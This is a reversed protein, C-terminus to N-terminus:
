QRPLRRITHHCGPTAPISFRSQDGPRPWYRARHGDIIEVLTYTGDHAPCPEPNSGPNVARYVQCHTEGEHTLRAALGAVYWTNFESRALQESYHHMPVPRGSPYGPEWFNACLLSRTLTSEDGNNIAQAMLEPFAEKGDASLRDSRYPDGSEEARFARHMYIRTDDDLEEFQMTM